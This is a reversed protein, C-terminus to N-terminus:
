RIQAGDARGGLSCEYLDGHGAGVALAGAAAGTLFRRRGMAPLDFMVVEKPFRDNAAACLGRAARNALRVWSSFHLLAGPRDQLLASPKGSFSRM